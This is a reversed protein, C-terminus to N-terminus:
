IQMAYGFQQAPKVVSCLVHPLLRIAIDVSYGWFPIIHFFMVICSTISLYSQSFINECAGSASAVNCKLVSHLNVFAHRCNLRCSSHSCHVILDCLCLRKQWACLSKELSDFSIIETYVPLYDNTYPYCEDPFIQQRRIVYVAGFYFDTARAHHKYLHVKNIFLWVILFSKIDARKQIAHKTDTNWM